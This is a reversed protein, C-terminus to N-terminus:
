VFFEQVAARRAEVAEKYTAFRGLYKRKGFVDIYAMFKSRSSDFCVGKAATNQMNITHSVDRLNELRMDCTNRNIHDIEGTPWKGYALAWAVRHAPYLIGEIKIRPYRSRCRMNVKSGAPARNSLGVLWTMDGSVPDYQVFKALQKPTHM